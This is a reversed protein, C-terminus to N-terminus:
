LSNEKSLNKAKTGIGFPNPTQAFPPDKRTPEVMDTEAELDASPNSRLLARDEAQSAELKADSNATTSNEKRIIAQRKAREQRASDLKRDREKQIAGARGELKDSPTVYGIAAHLRVDNYYRIYEGIMQTADDHSLPTGKRVCESKLSRHFREIKGNSQPYYPSTRVHTMGCERVFQKFDKAIFQPGNDTIIRPTEGPFKERCRQIVIETDRETMSPRLEWHCISRSYGDLISCLFFFTGEVNIYSIDTHWHEHPSTPQDFGQGKKSAKRGGRDMVGADCLVRYVSSPSVAVIDRDMMMYTLRRYGELPHESHFKVIKEKEEDTLWWDRPVSGNHQNIKGYRKKWDFFKGEAIGIWQVINKAPVGTRKKWHHVYDVIQDRIDHPM